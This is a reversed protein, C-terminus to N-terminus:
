PREGPAARARARRRDHRRPHGTRRARGREDARHGASAGAPGPLPGGRHQGLGPGRRRSRARRRVGQARRASRHRRALSLAGVQVLAAAARAAALPLLLVLHLRRPQAGDAHEGGRRHAAGAIGLLDMEAIAGRATPSCGSGSTPISGPGRWSGPATTPASAPRSPRSGRTSRPPISWARRSWSAKSRRSGCRPIRLCRGWLTTTITRLVM